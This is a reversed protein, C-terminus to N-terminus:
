GEAAENAEAYIGTGLRTVECSPLEPGELDPCYRVQATDNAGTFIAWERGDDCTAIWMDTTEYPAVYGSGTVRDCPFGAATIARRMTIDRNMDSLEFLANQDEGRVEITENAAPPTTDGCAALMLPLAILPLRVM